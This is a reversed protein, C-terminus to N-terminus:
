NEKYITYEHQDGRNIFTINSARLDYGTIKLANFARKIESKISSGELVTISIEVDGKYKYISIDTVVLGCREELYEKLKLKLEVEDSNINERILNRLKIKIKEKILNNCKM